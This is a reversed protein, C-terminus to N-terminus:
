DHAARAYRADTTHMSVSQRTLGITDVIQNARTLFYEKPLCGTSEDIEKSQRKARAVKLLPEIRASSGADCM